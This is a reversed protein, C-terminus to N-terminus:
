KRGGLAEDNDHIRISSVKETSEITVVQKVLKVGLAFHLPACILSILMLAPLSARAKGQYVAWRKAFNRLVFHSILVFSLAGLTTRLFLLFLREDGLDFMLIVTFM